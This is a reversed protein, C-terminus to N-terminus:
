SQEDKPPVPAFWGVFLLLLGVIIFSIIREIGGTNALEVLFLKCVVVGMLTAGAIWLPRRAIKHAYIMTIIAAIAWIISLTAQVGFSSLLARWEIGIYYHWCRMVTASLVILALLAVGVQLYRDTDATKEAFGIRYWQWLQYIIALSGIEITNIIPIYSHAVPHSFNVALVWIVCFIALVISIAGSYLQEYPKFYHNFHTFIVWATLPVILTELPRLIEFHEHIAHLLISWLFIYSLSLIASSMSTTAQNKENEPLRFLTLFALATGFLLIVSGTLAYQPRQWHQINNFMIFAGGLGWLVASYIGIKWRRFTTFALLIAWIILGSVCLADTEVLGFDELVEHLDVMALVIGLWLNITGFINNAKTNSNDKRWEAEHLLYASVIWLLAYLTLIGNNDFPRNILCVIALFIGITSFITFVTNKQKWQLASLALTMLTIVPMAYVPILTIMPLSFANILTLVSNASQANSEWVASEERHNQHWFYYIAAGSIFVMLAGIGSGQWMPTPNISYYPAHQIGTLQTFAALAFVGLALLRTHPQRQMLGFVYVLGAELAWASATWQQELALPIAITIFLASLVTFAQKLVAFDEGKNRYIYALIGYVGAWLLASYAAANEWQEVMAYQLGFSSLATGFLLTSDLASIHMGYAVITKWIRSLTANNPIERLEGQLPTTELTRHAFFCAVLTYLLWHYILFFECSIFLNPQYEHSWLLAIWLTGIAGILNLSRWAKFWAIIAIGTNLIALYTFLMIHSGTGDSTLVPAALGGIVAIQAMIKADKIVARWAMLAVAWLMVVFAVNAPLIHHLKVAALATLYMVGFGFGQLILGYDRRKNQLFEGGVAAAIGTAFVLLYRVSMPMAGGVYRLLFALGLFLVVVGTKLLLNGHTMWDIAQSIFNDDSVTSKKPSYVPIDTPAQHTAYETPVITQQTNQQIDLAQTNAAIIAEDKEPQRFVTHQEPIDTQQHDKINEPLRFSTNVQKEPLPPLTTTNSSVTKAMATEAQGLATTKELSQNSIATEPLRFTNETQNQINKEPQRQALQRNEEFLRLNQQELIDLRSRLSHLEQKLLTIQAQM